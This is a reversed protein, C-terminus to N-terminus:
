ASKNLASICGTKYTKFRGYIPKNVQRINFSVFSKKQFLAQYINIKSPLSIDKSM